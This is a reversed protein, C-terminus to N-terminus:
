TAHVRVWAVQVLAAPAGRSYIGRCRPRSRPSGPTDKAEPRGTASVRTRRKILVPMRAPIAKTKTIGRASTRPKSAPRFSPRRNSRTSETLLRTAVAVGSNALPTNKIKIKAIQSLSTGPATTTVLSLAIRSFGWISIKGTSVSVSTSSPYTSLIVRALMTSTM